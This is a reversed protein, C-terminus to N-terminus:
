GAELDWQTIDKCPHKGFVFEVALGFNNDWSRIMKVVDRAKEGTRVSPLPALM